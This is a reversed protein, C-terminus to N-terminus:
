TTLLTEVTTAGACCACVCFLVCCPIYVTQETTVDNISMLRNTANYSYMAHM